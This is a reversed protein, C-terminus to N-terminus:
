KLAMLTAFFFCQDEKRSDAVGWFRLVAFCTAEPCAGGRNGDRGPASVVCCIFWARSPWKEGGFCGQRGGRPQPRVEPCGGECAFLDGKGKGFGGGQRCWARIADRVEGPFPYINGVSRDEEWEEEWQNGQSIM